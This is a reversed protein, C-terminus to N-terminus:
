APMPRDHEDHEPEYAKGSEHCAACISCRVLREPVLHKAQIECAITQREQTLDTDCTACPVPKRM